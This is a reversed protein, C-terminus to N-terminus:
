GSASAEGEPYQIAGHQHGHWLGVTPDGKPGGIRTKIRDDVIKSGTLMEKSHSTIGLKALKAHIELDAQRALERRSLAFPRRVLSRVRKPEKM